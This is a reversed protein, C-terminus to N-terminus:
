IYIIYEYHILMDFNFLLGNLSSIPQSSQMGTRQQMIIPKDTYQLVSRMVGEHGKTSNERASDGKVGRSIRGTEAGGCSRVTSSGEGNIRSENREM